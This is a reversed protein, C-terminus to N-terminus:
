SNAVLFTSVTGAAVEQGAEGITLAYVALPSAGGQLRAAVRFRRGAALTPVTFRADRIGVLYGIRPGEGENRGLAELAAAAQAAAELTLFAPFRGGAVLPHSPSIEAVAVIGGEAVEAVARLLLAPPQHPLLADPSAFGAVALSESAGFDSDAPEPGAWIRVEGQSAMAGECRVEFREVGDEGPISFRLELLDGPVVTRRLKLSRVAALAVERGTIEGLAWQALALHAIGPLIPQGPFHGIFLSCEEPVAVAFRHGDEGSGRAILRLPRTM